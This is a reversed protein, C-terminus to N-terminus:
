NPHFYITKEETTISGEGKEIIFLHYDLLRREPMIKTVEKHMPNFDLAMRVYPSIIRNEM